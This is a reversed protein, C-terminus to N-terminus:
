PITLSNLIILYNERQINECKNLLKYSICNFKCASVRIVGIVGLILMKCKKVSCLAGKLDM